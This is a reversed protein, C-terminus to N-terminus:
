KILIGSGGGVGGQQRAGWADGALGPVCDKPGSEASHLLRWGWRCAIPSTCRQENRYGGGKGSMAHASGWGSLAPNNGM